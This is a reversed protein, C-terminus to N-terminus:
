GIHEDLLPDQGRGKHLVSCDIGGSHIADHGFLLAGQVANGIDM